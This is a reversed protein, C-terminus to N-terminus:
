VCWHGAASIHQTRQGTRLAPLPAGSRLQSFVGSLRSRLALPAHGTWHRFARCLSSQEDFGASACLALLSPTGSLLGIIAHQARAADFVQRFTTGEQRLRRQLTRTGIGLRQAVAGQEAEAFPIVTGLTA